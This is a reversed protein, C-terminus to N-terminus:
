YNQQYGMLDSERTIHQWHKSIASQVDQPNGGNINYTNKIDMSKSNDFQSTSTSPTLLDGLHLKEALFGGIAIGGTILAIWPNVLRAIIAVITAIAGLQQAWGPFIQLGREFADIIMTLGDVLPTIVPDIIAGLTILIVRFDAALKNVIQHWRAIEQFEHAQNILARDLDQTHDVLLLMEDSIGLMQAYFRRTAPDFQKLYELEKRLLEEPHGSFGRPDIGLLMGVMQGPGSGTRILEFISSQIGAIASSTAGATIGFQQAINDWREFQQASVGTIGMLKNFPTALKDSEDVITKLAEYIGGLGAAAFVSALNLDGIDHIFNHLTKTDSKFGLEVILEGITM